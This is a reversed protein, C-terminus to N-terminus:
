TIMQVLRRAAGLAETFPITEGPKAFSVQSVYQEYELAWQRERYLINLMAAFREVPKQPVVAGGRGTDDLATKLVLGSFGPAGQLYSELAALDHLHRIITPDDHASGRERSCVRWALTSLKDAATEVPDVCPFSAVEPPSKQALAIISQISRKIPPRTPAHFSMEVRIHPRFGRGPGFLSPYAFDASFFRSDNGILPEGVPSFGHGALAALVRERYVRRRKRAAAGSKGTPMAIKFDMDESYRKIIGWGKSLSTGGSFVATEGEQELSAMVGIARVVHWDKEVLGEDTALAGAIREVLNRDIM